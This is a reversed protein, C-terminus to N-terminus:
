GLPNPLADKLSSPMKSHIRTCYATMQHDSIDPVVITRVGDNLKITGDTYINNTTGVHTYNAYAPVNTPPQLTIIDRDNVWRQTKQHLPPTYMLNFYQNGIKPCGYTHVGQVDIGDLKWMRYACLVSLAGGLSHGTIWLKKGGAIQELVRKKLYYYVSSLAEYWGGHVWVNNGFWSVSKMTAATGLNTLWDEIIMESGRFAVIVVKSNSLIGYETGTTTSRFAKAYYMGWNKFRAEYKTRFDYYGTAGVQDEYMYLSALALLYSNAWSHGTVDAEFYDYHKIQRLYTITTDFTPTM